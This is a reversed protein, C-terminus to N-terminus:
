CIHLKMIYLHIIHVENKIDCCKICVNTCWIWWHSTPITTLMAAKWATSGPEIGPQRMKCKMIMIAMSFDEGKVKSKYYVIIWDWTEFIIYTHLWLSATCIKEIDKYYNIRMICFDYWSCKKFTSYETQCFFDIDKIHILITCMNKDISTSIYVTM